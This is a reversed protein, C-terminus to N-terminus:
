GNKLIYIKNIHTKKAFSLLTEIITMIKLIAGNCIIYDIFGKIDRTMWLTGTM